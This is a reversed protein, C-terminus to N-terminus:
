RRKLQLIRLHRASSYVTTSANETKWKLAVAITGTLDQSMASLHATCTFGGTSTKADYVTAAIGAAVGNIYLQFQAYHNISSASFVVQADVLIAEDAEATINTTILDALTTSATSAGSSSSASTAKCTLETELENDLQSVNVTNGSRFTTAYVSM